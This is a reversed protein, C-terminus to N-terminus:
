VVPSSAGWRKKQSRGEKVYFPGFYDVTSYNFPPAPELRDVPLYSMKQGVVRGRLNKCLVCKRLHATIATRGQIIWYGHARIENLTTSRGSHQVYSHYHDIILNTIPGIKPLIVPHALERPINARKIRGGVRILGDDCIYPDLQYSSSGKKVSRRDANVGNLIVIDNAFSELQVSKLIIIEAVCIEAVSVRVYDNNKRPNYTKKITRARLRAKFRLCVAVARKARHWSSFYASLDQQCTLHLTMNSMLWILQSRRSKLTM